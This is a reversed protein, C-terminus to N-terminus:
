ESRQGRVESEQKLIAEALALDEEQTIKINRASGEVAVIEAGLREVLLSDDTVEIGAAEVEDLQDYARKLLDYRFCQPTLARRLNQRQATRKVLGNEIDKITDAVLAVLIAAGSARAAAVVRDIEDPTVFPRVGDHVAVIEANGIANLGCQVSRARTAGGAVVRSLKRVEFKEALSSFAATDEAPVVVIIENIEECREFQRLTHVIVPVGCLELFQKPQDGGLRTGKGAAVVIAVNM